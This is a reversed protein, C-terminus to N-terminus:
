AAVKRAARRERARAAYRDRRADEAPDATERRLVRRDTGWPRSPVEGEHWLALYDKRARGLLSRFTQPRIGLAQAALVYDGQVALATVAERQRPTLAALIQTLAVRETVGTEPSPFSFAAWGWYRAFGAGNNTGDTRAGHHRMQDRVDRSLAHRGAEMLDLRSPAEAASCLREAIGHWATDHQDARDGAPWWHRNNSVVRRALDGIDALTYGHLPGARPPVALTVPPEPPAYYTLEGSRGRGRRRRAKRESM